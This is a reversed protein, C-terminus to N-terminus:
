IAFHYPIETKYKGRFTKEKIMIASDLDHFDFAGTGLAFHVSQNIGLSSEGMCGIMLHLNAAKALEVIALADSIGSKMLKINIYDVAEEKILRMVDYKTKASEDAGVPFPSHFRVFKLGEIDHMKVPQEFISIDIGKKYLENVFMVAEKPTYGMNADVIYKAGKTTEHIRILAEIDEKLNEGVKIKIVRFGEDFIKKADNIREELTGISVTKDTEIKEKAGGLIKYVPLGIEESLADLTAYQVAAKISPFAFLKDTIDFIQKYNKVDYGKIMENIVPELALLAEVKEGNVRFSPSAEGFGHIGNELEISVEINRTQSSISNTIHFPKEYEFVNLKFKVSKIKGM